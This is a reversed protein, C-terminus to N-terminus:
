HRARQLVKIRMAAYENKPDVALAKEFSRLADERKGMAMYVEAAANHPMPSSPFLAANRAHVRLAEDYRKLTALADAVDILPPHGRWGPLAAQRWPRPSIM